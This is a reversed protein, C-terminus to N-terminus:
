RNPLNICTNAANDPDCAAPTPIGEEPILLYDKCICMKRCCFPGTQVAVACTFGEVCPSEPVKDCDDASSCEATCLDAYESGEPPVKGTDQPVRLCQRSPCELAPSAVISQNTNGMGADADGPNNVDGIFCKRGVPNESCATVFSLALAALSLLLTPTLLRTKM